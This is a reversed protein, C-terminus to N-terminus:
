PREDFAHAREHRQDRSSGPSASMRTGRGSPRFLQTVLARVSGVEVGKSRQYVALAAALVSGGPVIVILLLLALAVLSRSM